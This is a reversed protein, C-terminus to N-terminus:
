NLRESAIQGTGTSYFVTRVGMRRMISMCSDCPASMTIKHTRKTVRIALVIAGRRLHKPIKFLARSEEHYKAYNYGVSVGEGDKIVIAGHKFLHHPSKKAERIGLELQYNSIGNNM